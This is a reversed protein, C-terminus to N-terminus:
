YVGLYPTTPINQEPPIKKSPPKSAKIRNLDTLTNEQYM